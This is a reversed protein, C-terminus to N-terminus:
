LRLFVFRILTYTMFYIFLFHSVQRQTRPFCTTCLQGLCDIVDCYLLGVYKNMYVTHMRVRTHSRSRASCYCFMIHSISPPFGGTSAYQIKGIELYLDPFLCAFGGIRRSFLAAGGYIRGIVAFGRLNPKKLDNSQIEFFRSMGIEPPRFLQFLPIERNFRSQQCTHGGGECFDHIRGQDM